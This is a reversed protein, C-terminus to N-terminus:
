YIYGLVSTSDSNHLKSACKRRGITVGFLMESDSKKTSLKDEGCLASKKLGTICRKLHMKVNTTYFDHRKNQADM